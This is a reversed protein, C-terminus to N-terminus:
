EMLDPKKFSISLFRYNPFIKYAKSLKIQLSKKPKYVNKM